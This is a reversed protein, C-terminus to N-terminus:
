RALVSRAGPINSHRGASSPEPSKEIDWFVDRAKPRTLWWALATVVGLFATLTYPSVQDFLLRAVSLYLSFGEEKQTEFDLRFHKMVESLGPLLFTAIGSLILLTQKVVKMELGVEALPTHDQRISVMAGDVKGLVRPVVRFTLVLDDQGLRTVVRPPHCDCGPLVPEIEIPLSLDVEFPGSTRQDVHKKQVKKISDRTIMVLLPYVREPNMRTYYRVTARRLSAVVEDELGKIGKKFEVIGKGFYRGVEPLKRGFLLVAIILLIIMEQTGLRFYGEPAGPLRGLFIASLILGGLLFVVLWRV